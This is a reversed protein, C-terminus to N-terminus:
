PPERYAPPSSTKPPMPCVCTCSFSMLDLANLTDGFHTILVTKTLEKKYNNEMDLLASVTM